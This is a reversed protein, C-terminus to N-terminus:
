QRPPLGQPSAGPGSPSGAPLAGASNRASSNLATGAAEKVRFKAWEVQIAKIKQVYAGKDAANTFSDLKKGKKLADNLRAAACGVIRTREDEELKKTWWKEAIGCEKIKEPQELLVAMLLEEPNGYYAIAQENESYALVEDQKVKDTPVPKLTGVLLGPVKKAYSTCDTNWSSEPKKKIADAMERLQDDTTLATMRTEAKGGKTKKIVIKYPQHKVIKIDRLVETQGIVNGQEDTVNTLESTRFSSDSEVPSHGVGEWYLRHALMGIANSTIGSLASLSLGRFFRGIRTLAGPKSTGEKVLKALDDANDGKLKELVQANVTKQMAKYIDNANNGSFDVLSRNVIDDVSGKLQATYKARSAADMTELIKGVDTGRPLTTSTLLTDLVDSLNPRGPITAWSSDVSALIRAQLEGKSGLEEVLGDVVAKNNREMSQLIQNAIRKKMQARTGSALGELSEGQFKAMLDDSVKATDFISATKMDALAKLGAPPTAGGLVTGLIEDFQPQSKTYANNIAQTAIEDLGKGAASAKVKTLHWQSPRVGPAGSEFLLEAAADKANDALAKQLKAAAARDATALEPVKNNVFEEAFKDWLSSAMLNRASDLTVKTGAGSFGDLIAKTGVTYGASSFEKVSGLMTEFEAGAQDDTYAAYEKDATPDWKGEGGFLKSIGNIIPAITYKGVFGLTNKVMEIVKGKATEVNPDIDLAAWMAPLACDLTVSGWPTLFAPIACAAFYVGVGGYRYPQMAKDYSSMRTIPEGTAGIKGELEKQFSYMRRFKSLDFENPPEPSGAWGPMAYYTEETGNPMAKEREVIKEILEKPHIGCAQLSVKYPETKRDPTASGKGTISIGSINELALPFMSTGKVCFSFAANYVGSGEKEQALRLEPGAKKDGNANEQYLITGKADKIAVYEIGDKSANKGPSLFDTEFTVPEAAKSSINMDVCQEQTNIRIAKEGSIALKGYLKDIDKYGKMVIYQGSDDEGWCDKDSFARQQFTKLAKAIDGEMERTYSSPVHAYMTKPEDAQGTKPVRIKLLGNGEDGKVIELRNSAGSIAAGYRGDAKGFLEEAFKKGLSDFEESAQVFGPWANYNALIVFGKDAPLFNSMNEIRNQCEETTVRPQTINVVVVFDRGGDKGAIIERNSVGAAGALQVYYKGCGKFTGGLNVNGFAFGVSGIDDVSKSGQVVDYGKLERSEGLAKLLVDETMFDLQLFVPFQETIIGMDEFSCSEKNAQACNSFKETSYGNRNAKDKATKVLTDAKDVLFKALQEADCYGSSCDSSLVPFAFNKREDSDCKKMSLEATHKGETTAALAGLKLTVALENSEISENHLTLIGVVKIASSTSAEQKKMLILRGEIEQGPALTNLVNLAFANGGVTEPVVKESLRIPEGCENRIKIKRELTGQGAETSSFVLSDVASAKLCKTGSYNIGLTTRGLDPYQRGEVVGTFTIWGQGAQQMAETRKSEAYVYREPSLSQGPYIAMDYINDPKIGVTIGQMYAEPTVAARFATIPVAGNNVVQMPSQAFALEETASRIMWLTINPPYSLNTRPNWLEVSLPITKAIQSSELKIRYSRRSQLDYNREISNSVTVKVKEIAGKEISLPSVSVTLNPDEQLAEVTARLGLATECRNEVEFEETATSGARGILRVLLSQSDFYLCDPDLQKNYSVQLRAVTKTPYNGAVMGKLVLDAEGYLSEDSDGDLNVIVRINATTDQGKGAVAPMSVSVSFEEPFDGGKEIEYALEKVDEGANNRVALAVTKEGSEEPVDIKVPSNVVLLGDRAIAIELQESKCGSASVTISYIGPSFSNKFYYEGRLGRRTSGRGVLSDVIEGKANKVQVTADQIADGTEGDLVKVTFAQGIDPNAPTVSVLLAKNREVNFVFSEGLVSQAVAQMKIEAKGEAVGTFYARVKRPREPSVGLANITISTGASGTKFGLPNGGTETTEASSEIYGQGSLSTEPPLPLQEKQDVFDDVDYGTFQIKPAAKDTDLKLTISVPKSSSLDIELAYTEGTVASFDQREVYLGTPMVFFYGACLEQACSAEAEFVKLEADLTQAYLGTKTETFMKEGLESDNPGRYVSGAAEVWARYHLEVTEKSISNNARAKVRFAITNEPSDFYLEVFKNLQGPMGANQKDATENGPAPLPQFSKGYFYNSTAAEFGTIGAEESDVFAIGDQGLRIHVGGKEAGSPWTSQFALWYEKGKALGQAPQNDSDFVGIFTIAPALGSSAEGLNIEVTEKGELNVKQSFTKGEDTEIAVMAESYGKADFFVRGDLLNGDFLLLGSVSEILVRGAGKNGAADLVALEVIGVPRALEIVMQNEKNAEVLKEGAGEEGEKKAGVAVLIGTRAMISAYGSIDTKLSPIGLPLLEGELRERFSLGANNAMAKYSDLVSIGLYASNSNDASDLYLSVTETGAVNVLQRAPLFGQKYGTAFYERPGLGSFEVSGGFGTVDEGVFNGNVDFLQVTADSLPNQGSFVAVALRSGGKKLVVPWLEEDQRMTRSEGEEMSDYSLFGEKEVVVRVSKGKAISFVAESEELTREELSTDTERDRVIAKAGRVPQGAEDLVSVVLSSMGSFSASGAVLSIEKLEGGTFSYNGSLTEYGDAQISLYVSTGGPIGAFKAKGASDTVANKTQGQWELSVSAGRVLDRTDRDVLQIEADIASVQKQMAFSATIDERKVVVSKEAKDFGNKEAVLVLETGLPIGQLEVTGGNSVNKPALLLKGSSDEVSVSVGSVAESFQDEFALTIVPNVGTGVFLLGYIGAIILVLLAVTVPFAPLGHGELFDNYTYVPLGKADLFDLVAYYKEELASYVTGLKESIM